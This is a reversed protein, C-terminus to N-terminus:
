YFLAVLICLSVIYVYDKGWNLAFWILGGTCVGVQGM